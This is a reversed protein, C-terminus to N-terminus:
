KYLKGYAAPVKVKRGLLTAVIQNYRNASIENITKYDPIFGTGQCLDQISIMAEPKSNSTVALKRRRKAGVTSEKVTVMFYPMSCTKITMLERGKLNNLLRSKCRFWGKIKLIIFIDRYRATFFIVDVKYFGTTYVYFTGGPRSEEIRTNFVNM